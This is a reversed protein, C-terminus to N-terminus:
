LEFLQGTVRADALERALVALREPESELRVAAANVAIRGAWERALARTAAEIGAEAVAAGAGSMGAPGSANVVGLISGGRDLMKGAAARCLMLYGSLRRDVHGAIEAEASEILGSAAEELAEPLSVLVDVSGLEAVVREVADAPRDRDVELVVHGRGLAWLENAISNAAFLAAESGADISLAVDAGHEALAVAVPRGFRSAAGSILAVRGGLSM